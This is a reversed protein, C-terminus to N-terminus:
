ESLFDPTRCIAYPRRFHPAIREGSSRLVLDQPSHGAPLRRLQDVTFSTGGDSVVLDSLLGWYLLQRCDTADGLLVPMGVKARRARQWLQLGTVWPKGESFTIRRGDREAAELVDIHVITYICHDALPTAMTAAGSEDERLSVAVQYPVKILGTQGRYPVPKVPTVDRLCVWTRGDSAWPSTCADHDESVEGDHALVDWLDAVAVIKGLPMIEELVEGSKLLDLIADDLEDRDEFQELIAACADFDPQSPTAASAIVIVPGRHKYPWRERNEVDKGLWAIACAWPQRVCFAPVPKGEPWSKLLELM